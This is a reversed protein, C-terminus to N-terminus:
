GYLVHYGLVLFLLVLCRFGCCFGCCVVFVILFWWFGVVFFMLFGDWVVFFAFGGDVM